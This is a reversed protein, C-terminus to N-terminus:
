TEQLTSKPSFYMCLPCRPNCFCHIGLIDLKVTSISLLPIIILTGAGGGGGIWGSAGGVADPVYKPVLGSVSANATGMGAGIIMM